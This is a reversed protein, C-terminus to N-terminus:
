IRMGPGLPGHLAALREAERVMKENADLIEREQQSRRIDLSPPLPGVIAQEGGRYLGMQAAPAHQVGEPPRELPAIVHGSLRGIEELNGTVDEGRAARSQLVADAEELRRQLMQQEMARRTLPDPEVAFTRGQADSVSPQREAAMRAAALRAAQRFEPDDMLAAQERAAEEFTRAM